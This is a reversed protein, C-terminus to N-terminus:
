DRYVTEVGDAKNYGASRNKFTLHAEGQGPGQQQNNDGAILHPNWLGFRFENDGERPTMNGSGTGPNANIFGTATLHQGGEYAVIPVGLANATAKFRNKIGGYIDAEFLLAAEKFTDESANGSTDYDLQVLSGSLSNGFYTTIAFVDVCGPQVAEAQNYVASNYNASGRLGAAVGVVQDAPKGLASWKDKFTKLFNGTLDGTGWGAESGNNDVESLPVNFAAADRERAYTNQMLNAPATNWFENSLEIWVRRNSDLNAAVLAAFSAIFQTDVDHPVQLWPDAGLQNCLAILDEYCIGLKNKYDYEWLAKSGNPSWVQGGTRVAYDAM